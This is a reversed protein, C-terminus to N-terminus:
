KENNISKKYSKNFSEKSFVPIRHSRRYDSSLFKLLLHRKLFGYSNMKQRSALVRRMATLQRRENKDIEDNANFLHRSEIIMDRIPLTIPCVEECRGCLTCAYATHRYSEVTELYPLIINGVPGVFVNNYPEDGITQYVPCVDNCRGCQICTLAQRLEKHRLLNTRQNDIIFLYNSCNPSGKFLIMDQEGCGTNYSRLQQYLEVWNSNNLIRDISTFFVNISGNSLRDLNGNSQNLLLLNGTDSLMMDAVFFQMDADERLEIREDRLFYKIGLERFITSSEVNPLRVSRTKYLKFLRKLSNFVDSYDSAWFITSHKSSFLNEFRNLEEDLNEIGRQLASRFAAASAKTGKFHVEEQGKLKFQRQGSGDDIAKESLEIFSSYFENHM